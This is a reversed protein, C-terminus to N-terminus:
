EERLGKRMQERMITFVYKIIEDQQRMSMDIFGIGYEKCNAEDEGIRKVEGKLLMSKNGMPLIITIISEKEIEINDRTRIRMGGGSLDVINCEMFKINKISEKTAKFMRDVVAFKGKYLVSVRVFKRRQIKKFKKPSNVWILPVNSNTRDVVMSSFSYICNGDHYLVDVTDKKRLPLYDSDKIPISIAVCDEKIDQIDSNYVTGEYDIIEVKNNIKFNLTTM